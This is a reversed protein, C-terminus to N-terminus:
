KSGGDKSLARVLRACNFAGSSHSGQLDALRAQGLRESQEAVMHMKKSHEDCVKAAEELTYPDLRPSVPDVRPPAATPPAAPAPPDCDQCPYWQDIVDCDWTGGRGDCTECDARPRPAPGDPPTAPLPAQKMWSRV